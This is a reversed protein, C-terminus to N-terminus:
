RRRSPCGVGASQETGSLSTSPESGHGAVEIAGLQRSVLEAVVEPQAESEGRDGEGAAALPAILPERNFVGHTAFLSAQNGEAVIVKRRLPAAEAGLREGTRGDCVLGEDVVTTIDYPRASGSCHWFRVPAPTRPMRLFFARMGGQPNGVSKGYPFKALSFAHLIGWFIGLFANERNNFSCEEKQVASRRVSIRAIKGVFRPSSRLLPLGGGM